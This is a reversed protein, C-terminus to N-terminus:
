CEVFKEYGVFKARHIVFNRSLKTGVFANEFEEIQKQIPVSPLEVSFKFEIANLLIPKEKFGFNVMVDSVDQNEVDCKFKLTAKYM